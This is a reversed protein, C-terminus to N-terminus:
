WYLQVAGGSTAQRAYVWGRFWADEGVGSPVGDARRGWDFFLCDGRVSGFSEVGDVDALDEVAAILDDAFQAVPGARCCPQATIQHLGAFGSEETYLM